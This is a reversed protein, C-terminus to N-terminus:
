TTELVTHPPFLQSLFSLVITNSPWMNVGSNWYSLFISVPGAAAMELSLILPTWQLLKWMIAGVSLQWKVNFGGNSILVNSVKGKRHWRRSTTTAPERRLGPPIILDGEHRLCPTFPLFLKGRVSASYIHIVDVKNMVALGHTRPHLKWDHLM